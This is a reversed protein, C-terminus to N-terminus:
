TTDIPWFSDIPTIADTKGPIWCLIITNQLMLQFLVSYSFLILGGPNFAHLKSACLTIEIYNMAMKIFHHPLSTCTMLFASLQYKVFELQIKKLQFYMLHYNFYFIFIIGIIKNEISAMLTDWMMTLMQLNMNVSILKIAIMESIFMHSHCHNFNMTM